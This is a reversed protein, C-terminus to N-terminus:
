IFGIPFPLKKARIQIVSWMGLSPRKKIGLVNKYPYKGLEIVGQTGM